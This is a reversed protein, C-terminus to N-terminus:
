AYRQLLNSSCLIVEFMCLTILLQGCGTSKIAIGPPMEPVHDKGGAAVTRAGAPVLSFQKL